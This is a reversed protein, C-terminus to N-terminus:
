PANWHFFWSRIFYGGPRGYIARHEVQAQGRVVPRSKLALRTPGCGQAAAPLVLGIALVVAAILLKM